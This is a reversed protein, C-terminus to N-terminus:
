SKSRVPLTAPLDIISLQIVVVPLAIGGNNLHTMMIHIIITIVMMSTIVIHVFIVVIVMMM